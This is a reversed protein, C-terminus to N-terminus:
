VVFIVDVDFMVDKPFNDQIRGCDLCYNFELYDGSGIGFDGPVHGDMNRTGNVEFISCCDNVKGSVSLIRHSGCICKHQM